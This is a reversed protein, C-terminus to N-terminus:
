FRLKACRFLLRLATATCHPERRPYSDCILAPFRCRPHPFVMPDPSALHASFIMRVHNMLAYIAQSMGSWQSSWKPLQKEHWQSRTYVLSPAKAHGRNSQHLSPTSCPCFTIHPQGATDHGSGFLPMSVRCRDVPFTAVLPHSRPAHELSDRIYVRAASAISKGAQPYLTQAGQAKARTLMSPKPLGRRILL